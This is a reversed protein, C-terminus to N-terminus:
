QLSCFTCGLHSVCKRVTKKKGWCSLMLRRDPFPKLGVLFCVCLLLFINIVWVFPSSFSTWNCTYFPGSPPPRLDRPIFIARGADPIRCTLRQQYVTKAIKYFDGWWHKNIIQTMKLTVHYFFAFVSSQSLGSLQSSVFLRRSKGTVRNISNVIM